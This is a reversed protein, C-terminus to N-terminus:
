PNLNTNNKWLLESFYTEILGPAIGNVRIRDNMLEQAMWNVMNDLAAKCSGYIGIM